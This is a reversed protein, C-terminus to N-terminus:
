KDEKEIIVEIKDTPQPINDLSDVLGGLTNIFINKVFENMPIDRGNVKLIINKNM